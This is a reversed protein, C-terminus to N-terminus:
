MYDTFIVTNNSLTCGYTDGLHYCGNFVFALHVPNKKLSNTWTFDLDLVISM